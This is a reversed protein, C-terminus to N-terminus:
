KSKLHMQFYNLITKKYHHRWSKKRNIGHKAGPYPMVDFLKAEDQLKSYLLLSNKYLVNDDAMGHAILLNGELKDIHSLVNAYKYAEPNEAPTGIYRETYHTDYLSWDVVPAGAIAVKYIDPKQMLLMLSLYGGYSHGYVGINNSDIFSHKKLLHKVVLSQDEVEIKGFNKYFTREFDRGRNPTGRNDAVLVIFDNQTLIQHFYNTGGYKAVLQVGPGGYVYQILPYKKAPNFNKPKLIKYFLSPKNKQKLEHFEWKSFGMSYKYAPHDANLKNEEVYFKFAGDINYFSLATPKLEKSFYDLYFNPNDAVVFNHYGVKSSIKKIQNKEDLSASYLHNELVSDKTSTYYVKKKNEDTALLSRVNWNGSTLPRDKGTKLDYYYIHSSGSKESVWLLAEEKKLFKYDHRINVWASDNETFLKRSKLSKVDYIMFDLQKQNRKQLTYSLQSKKTDPLWKIQPIYFDKKDITPVIDPSQKAGASSTKFILLDVTANHTGAYPYRQKILKVQDTYIEFRETEKVQTNDVKTIALFKENPSWFYGRYRRMEEQAIFEAAGMPKEKTGSFTVQSEIGTKLNIIFVNYNRIFSVFNGKPSFRPDIEYDNTKTLRTVPNKSDIGYLYLDGNIPFLIQDSQESWFYEVIGSSSIRKRERRAAEEESMKETAGQTLVASDVLLRPKEGNLDYVWLDQTLFDNKKAKLFSVLKGNPSIKVNRPLSGRLSPSESLRKLPLKQFFNNNSKSCNTLIFLLLTLTKLNRM